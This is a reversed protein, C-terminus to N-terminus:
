LEVVTWPRRQLHACATILVCINDGDDDIIWPDGDKDLSIEYVKGKTLYGPATDYEHKIKM